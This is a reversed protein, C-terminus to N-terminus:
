TITEQMSVEFKVKGCFKINGLTSVTKDPQIKCGKRLRRWTSM